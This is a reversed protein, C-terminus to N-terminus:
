IEPITTKFGNVPIFTPSVDLEKHNQTTRNQFSSAFYPYEALTSRRFVYHHNTSESTFQSNSFVLSSVEIFSCSFFYFTPLVFIQEYRCRFNNLFAKDATYIVYLRIVFHNFWANLLEKMFVVCSTNNIAEKYRTCQKYLRTSRSVYIILNKISLYICKTLITNKCVTNYDFIRFSIGEQCPKLSKYTSLSFLILITCAFIFNNMRKISWWM